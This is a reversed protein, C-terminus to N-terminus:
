YRLPRLDDGEEDAAVPIRARGRSRRLAPRPPRQGRVGRPDRRRARRRPARRLARRSRRRWSADSRPCRSATWSPAPWWRRSRPSSGSGPRPAHYEAMAAVQKLIIPPERHRARVSPRAGRGAADSRARRPGGAADGPRPLRQPAHGPHRSPHPARRRHHRPDPAGGAQRARVHLAPGPEERPGPHNARGGPSSGGM